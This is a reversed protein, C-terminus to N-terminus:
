PCRARPGRRRALAALWRVRAERAADTRASAQELAGALDLERTEEAALRELLGVAVRDV